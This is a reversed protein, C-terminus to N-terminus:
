AVIKKLFIIDHDNEYVSVCFNKIAPISDSM